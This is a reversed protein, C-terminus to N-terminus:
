TVRMPYLDVLSETHVQQHVAAQHDLQLGHLLESGGMGILQQGIQTEQVQRDSQKGVETCRGELFADSPYHVVM